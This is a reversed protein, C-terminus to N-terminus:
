IKIGKTYRRFMALYGGNYSSYEESDLLVEFHKVKPEIEFLYKADDPYNVAREVDPRCVKKPGRILEM